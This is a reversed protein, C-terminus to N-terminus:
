ECAQADQQERAGTKGGGRRGDVRTVRSPNECRGCEYQEHCGAQCKEVAAENAGFVHDRRHQLDYGNHKHYGQLPDDDSVTQRKSRVNMM